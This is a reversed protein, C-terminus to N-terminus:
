QASGVAYLYHSQYGPSNGLPKRTRCGAKYEWSDHSRLLFRVMGALGQRANCLNMDKTVIGSNGVYCRQWGDSVWPAVCAEM